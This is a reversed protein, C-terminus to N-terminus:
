GKPPPFLKPLKMFLSKDGELVILRNGLASRIDLELLVVKVWVESSCTIRLDPKSIASESITCGGEDITIGYHLDADTFDFQIRARVRRAAAPDFGRLFEHMLIQIDRGVVPVVNDISMGDAGLKSAADWYRETYRCFTEADSSIQTSAMAMTNESLVGTAGAEQGGRAFALEINKLAMPKCNKFPFLYSEPRTLHGGMEMNTGDAIMEFTELLPKFMDTSRLAGVVITVLTKKQWLGPSRRKNRLLGKPTHELGGRFLPLTREFFCKLASSMSYFYLPTACVVVNAEQLVPLLKDMDDRHVCKGPTKLWCHYCGLCPRIDARVVDVDTIEADTKQLGAAFCDVLHRTYGAKRPYGRLLLVKM